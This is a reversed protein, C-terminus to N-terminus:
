PRRMPRPRAASPGRLRRAPPPLGRAPAGDHAHPARCGRERGGGGGAWTASRRALMGSVCCRRPSRYSSTSLVAPAAFHAGSTFPQAAAPGPPPPAPPAAPPPGPPAAAATGRRDRLRPRAAGACPRHLRLGSELAGHKVRRYRGVCGRFPTTQSARRAHLAAKGEACGCACEAAHKSRGHRRTGARGAPAATAPGERARPGALPRGQGRGRGRQTAAQGPGRGGARQWAAARRRARRRRGGRRRLRRGLVGRPERREDVGLHRPGRARAARALQALAVRARLHRHAAPDVAVAVHAAQAEEVHAVV